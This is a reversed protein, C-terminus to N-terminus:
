YPASLVTAPAIVRRRSRSGRAGSRRLPRPSSHELAVIEEVADMPIEPFLPVYKDTVGSVGTLLEVTEDEESFLEILEFALKGEPVTYLKAGVSTDEKAQVDVGDPNM